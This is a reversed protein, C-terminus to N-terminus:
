HRISAQHVYFTVPGANMERGGPLTLTASATHSGRYVDQFTASLSPAPGKTQGDLHFTVSAGPPLGPSVTATVTVEQVNWFTEQDTPSSLTFKMAPAAATQNGPPPLAPMAVAPAAYSQVAPLKLKQAGPQPKDSYHVNGQADVWKYVTDAQAFGLGLILALLLPLVTKQM